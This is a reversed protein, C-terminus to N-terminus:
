KTYARLLALYDRKGVYAQKYNNLLNALATLTQSTAFPWSPGNWLCEHPNAFMFRPDRREATAPGFPAQFGQDDVIQKWAVERGPLPLNFYWPVYGIEERVDVWEHNEGRPITEYFGRTEDWLRDEVLARLRAARMRFDLSLDNKGAWKAIDGLALADGYLYSNITPRYGSGGISVEMGDRDDIQWFLGNADRHTKEWQKYNEVLDPLLDIALQQDDTVMSWAHIADAVWFSYLRPNADPKFWVRAYQRLYEPNRLWRGEYFHHGASASIINHAGAWPVDPLFETIVFGEPTSRIHKRYVWWRFYYMEEISRDSCEFFPINQRMWDWAEANKIMGTKGEPDDRNFAEVYHRFQGPQLVEVSRARVSACPLLIGCALVLIVQNFAMM